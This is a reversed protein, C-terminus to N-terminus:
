IKFYMKDNKKSLPLLIVVGVSVGSVFALTSNAGHGIQELVNLGTVKLFCTPMQSFIAVFFRLMKSEERCLLSPM